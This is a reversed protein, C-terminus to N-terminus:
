AASGSELARAVTRRRRMYYVAMAGQYAVTALGVITYLLTNMDHAMEDITLGPPLQTKALTLSERWLQLNPHHLGYQCYGLIVIMLFFQSSTLWSMGRIEAHELLSTGHLEIAGAGAVLLGIIAGVRDGGLASVLAFFGAVLLIGM